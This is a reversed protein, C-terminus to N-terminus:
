QGGKYMIFKMRKALRESDVSKKRRGMRIRKRVWGEGVKEVEEGKEGGDKDEELDVRRRRRRKRPKYM